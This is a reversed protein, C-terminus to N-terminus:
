LHKLSHSILLSVDELHPENKLAKNVAEQSAFPTYGLNILASVADQLSSHIQGGQAHSIRFSVPLTQSKLELLLREATKKGIGPVKCLLQVNKQILAQQLQDVSLHGVISLALKPGIGSINLLVNFLDREDEHIFGYLAQSFERIVFAVHMTVVSERTAMKAAHNPAIYLIYGIGNVELVLEEETTKVVKGKLYSYM